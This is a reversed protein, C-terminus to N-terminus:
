TNTCKWKVTKSKDLSCRKTVDEGTYYTYKPGPWGFYILFWMIMASLFGFIYGFMVSSTTDCNNNKVRVIYDMVMIGLLLSSFILGSRNPKSAVGIMIYTFTFMHFLARLSPTTYNTQMPSEFINCLGSETYTKIFGPPPSIKMITQASLGITLAIILSFLYIIGKMNGYMFSELVLFSSILIPSISTVFLLVNKPTLKLPM